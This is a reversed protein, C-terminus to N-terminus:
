EYGLVRLVSQNMIQRAVDDGDSFQGLIKLTRHREESAGAMAADRLLLVIRRRQAPTLKLREQCLLDHIQEKRTRYESSRAARTM